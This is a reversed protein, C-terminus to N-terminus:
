GRPMRSALDHIPLASLGLRGAPTDTASKRRVGLTVKWANNKKDFWVEELSPLEISEDSMIDLLYRQAGAVATKVDM